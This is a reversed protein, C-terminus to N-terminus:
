RMCYLINGCFNDIYDSIRSGILWFTRIEIADHRRNLSSIESMRTLAMRSSPTHLRAVLSNSVPFIVGGVVGNGSLAGQARTM